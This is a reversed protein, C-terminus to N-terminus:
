DSNIQLLKVVKARLKKVEDNDTALKVVRRKKKAHEKNVVLKKV